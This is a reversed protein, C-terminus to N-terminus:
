SPRIVPGILDGELHSEIDGGRLAEGVTELAQGYASLTQVVDQWTHSYCVFMGPRTLIGRKIIEQIFLSQMLPSPQGERDTFVMEPWCGYGICRTVDTLEQEAALDNYGDKLAQGIAWIHQLVDKERMEQITAISAALSLTEGGFTFSIFVEELLRMIEARGVITSIPMGNAMSKGFAALDPTVQFYEQAGGLSMRFGTIVEDFILLAGKEHALERVEELFGDQPEFFNTPEMIVAAVEGPNGNFIAKLSDLDNYQFPLTLQRVAHPVGLNRSTSGIYWDQWGHYGCCAIKDRRTYARALRITAATADSGNKGFRVMEACPILEVLLESLEVQLPHLLPLSIGQQLQEIIARNVRPYAHGLSIPGLALGYDIYENGDVDWVHGGQGRQIYKPAVGNVYQNPGNSFTQTGSPIIQVARHWLFESRERKLPQAKKM